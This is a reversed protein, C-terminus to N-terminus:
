RYIDRDLRVKLYVIIIEGLFSVFNEFCWITWKRGRLCMTNFGFLPKTLGIAVSIGGYLARPSSFERKLRREEVFNLDKNGAM